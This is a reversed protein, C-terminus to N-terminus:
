LSYVTLNMLTSQLNLALFPAQAQLGDTALIKKLLAPMKSGEFYRKYNKVKSLRQLLISLKDLTHLQLFSHHSLIHVAMSFWEDSACAKLFRPLLSSEVSLQLLIDVILTVTVKNVPHALTVLQEVGSNTLFLERCQGSESLTDKLKHLVECVVDVQSATILIALMSFTLVILDSSRYFRCVNQQYLQETIRRLTTTLQSKEQKSTQMLVCYLFQVCPLELSPDLSPLLQSSLQLLKKVPPKLKDPNSLAETVLTMLLSTVQISVITSPTSLPSSWPLTQTSVSVQNPQPTTRLRHSHEVKRQVSRLRGQTSSLQSVLRDKETKLTDMQQKMNKNATRITEFSSKLRQNEKVKLQFNQEMKEMEKQYEKLRRQVEQEIYHTLSEQTSALLGELENMREERERLATEREAVCSLQVKLQDRIKVLESLVMQEVPEPSPSDEQRVWVIRKGNNKSM